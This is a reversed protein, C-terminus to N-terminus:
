GTRPAREPPPYVDNKVYVGLVGGLASLLVTYAAVVTVILLILLFLGILDDDGVARYIAGDDARHLEGHDLLWQLQVRPIGALAPLAALRDIM